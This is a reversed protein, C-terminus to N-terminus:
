EETSAPAQLPYKQKLDDWTLGEGSVLCLKNVVSIVESIPLRVQETSDRERLTVTDKMAGDRTTDYDVTVAFPV